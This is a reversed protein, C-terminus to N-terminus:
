HIIPPPCPTAQGYVAIGTVSASGHSLFMGPAEAAPPVNVGVSALGILLGFDARCHMTPVSTVAGVFQTRMLLEPDLHSDQTAASGTSGDAAYATLTGSPVDLVCFFGTKFDVAINSGIGFAGKDLDSAIAQVQVDFEQSSLERSVFGVNAGSSSVAVADIGSVVQSTSEGPQALPQWHMAFQSPDHFSDFLLLCDGAIFPSRDCADGVSDGDRDNQSVNPILPCNDCADGVGDHDKDSQGPNAVMPCNDQGDPVGDSDFDPGADVAHTQDIGLLPNCGALALLLWRM